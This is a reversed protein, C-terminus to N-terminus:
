LTVMVIDAPLLPICGQLVDLQVAVSEPHNCANHQVQSTISMAITHWHSLINSRAVAPYGVQEEILKKSLFADDVDRATNDQKVKSNYLAVM